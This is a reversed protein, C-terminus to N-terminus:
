GAAAAAKAASREKLVTVIMPLVSIFVIMLVVLEFHKRVFETAGFEYGAGLCITTWLLTGLVSSAIFRSYRMAGIGAVFPAFTRVIPVFRALILAKPGHKEYFAHTRDLHAQQVFPLKGKAHLTPGLFKGVQYNVNDGLFAAGMMLAFAVPLSIQADPRAAFAGVTFLLSDGPLFPLVILGTECFVILAIIAYTETGYTALLRDLVKDVHLLNQVIEPLAV